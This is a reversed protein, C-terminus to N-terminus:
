SNRKGSRPGGTILIRYPYNLIRSWNPNHEKINEKTVDDFNIMKWNRKMKNCKIDEKYCVLDRKREYAYTEVSDIWEIRKDGNASM